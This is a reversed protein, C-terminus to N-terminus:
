WQVTKLLLLNVARQNRIGLTGKETGKILISGGFGAGKTYAHDRRLISNM